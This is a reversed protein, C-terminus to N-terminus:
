TNCATNIWKNLWYIHLHRSQVVNFVCCHIFLTEAWPFCTNQAAVPLLYGYLVIDPILITRFFLSYPSRSATSPHSPWSTREASANSRLGAMLKVGGFKPSKYDDKSGRFETLSKRCLNQRILKFSRKLLQSTPTRSRKLSHGLRRQNPARKKKSGTKRHCSCSSLHPEQQGRPQAEFGVADGM